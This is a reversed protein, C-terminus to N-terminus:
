KNQLSLLQTSLFNGTSTLESMATELDVFQQVLQERQLDFLVKQRDFSTQLSKIEDDFSDDLISLTGTKAELLGGIVKDLTAGIGRTVSLDAEVGAGIQSADLTIQLQLDATHSNESRGTLTQGKGTALEVEGDVLFSGAVNVGQDEEGGAFGLTALSSGSDIKVSSTSGYAASTVSLKDGVLGVRVTRGKLESSQNITDQLNEALEARTFTGEGLSVTADAGDISLTLERNSSDIVISGALDTGATISAREAAQTINVKYSSTDSPLTKTSARVFRIGSISADAQTAFLDKLQESGVGSVDGNLVSQLKAENLSLMGTDTVSVGIASLRNLSQSVGPVSGLVSDRITQQLSFVSRNGQLIGAQNSAPDYKSLTEIQGMLSNFSNVFNKVGDIASKNDGKVTVSIEDGDTANIVDLRVGAILDSFENTSSEVSIAGVGSGLTISANSAAQVPTGLDFEIKSASGSAAALNNTISIENDAGTKSSSLLIRHSNAGGSSDVVISASVGSNSSNIEEVLGALTNNSSDITITRLDGSGVRLELTGTTIEADADSVGQSAVQHARAVNNVTLRYIGNAATEKATAVLKSDDSVTATKRSFPNENPRSLNTATSRLGLLNAELTAFASQKKVVESQNFEIRDLQTQQIQLLGTIISESDIGTVLGDITPM